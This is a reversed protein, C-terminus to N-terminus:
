SQEFSRRLDHQNNYEYNKHMDCYLSQASQYTDLAVFSIRDRHGLYLLLRCHLWSQKRGFKGFQPRMKENM